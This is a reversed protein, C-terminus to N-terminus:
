KGPNKRKEQNFHWNRKLIKRETIVLKIDRHKRVNEITKEFIANNIAKISFNM